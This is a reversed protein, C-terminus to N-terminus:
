VFATPNPDGYGLKGFIYFNLQSILFNNGIPRGSHIIESRTRSAMLQQTVARVFARLEDDGHRAVLAIEREVWDLDIELEPKQLM